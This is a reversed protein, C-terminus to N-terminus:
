SGFRRRIYPSLHPYEKMIGVLVHDVRTGVVAKARKGLYEIPIAVLTEREDEEGVWGRIRFLGGGSVGNPDPLTVQGNLTWAVKKDYEIILHDRPSWHTDVYDALPRARAAFRLPDVQVVNDRTKGQKTAPFGVMLYKSGWTPRYDVVESPELEELALFRSDRLDAVESERLPIIALDFRDNARLGGPAHTNTYRGSVAVIRSEGGVYFEHRAIDMVHAATVVFESPGVRLLIGTGIVQADGNPAPIFIPSVAPLLREVARAVREALGRLAEQSPRRHKPVRAPM